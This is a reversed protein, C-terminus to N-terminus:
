GIVENRVDTRGTERDRYTIVVELTAEEATVEIERVDILDGLWTTLAQFVM